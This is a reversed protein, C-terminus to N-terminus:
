RNKTFAKLIVNCEHEKEVNEWEMGRLSIYGEGDTIDVNATKENSVYEIAIPRESEPTKIKIIIAYKQDKNLYINNDLRVTYYGANSFKGTAVSDVAVNLSSEDLFNECFYISYETDVGTAYFSIAQLTENKKATYANAFYAMDKGYGIQGVWGCLDTQYINDFNDNPEIETYVVSNTGIITDYYSIYFNGEDGFNPGWSNRCIFAGDGPLIENFNEKPFDDDWGVIVVDHNPKENGTYCYANEDINYYNNEESYRATTSLYLSSQVGGYKYVMKKIMEYDKKPILQAEQLHKVPKLYNITKGDGYPDDKELVPGTWSALYALAMSYEGGRRQSLGFAENLSMHDPSFVYREEPLLSSELATLSAFAWCTGLAGQDKIEPLKDIDAYNYYSPLVLSDTDLNTLRATNNVPDWVFDYDFGEALTKLPVFYGKENFLFFSDIVVVDENIRITNSDLLMEITKSGKEMVIRKEEYIDVSCDFADPIVEVPVMIDRFENMFLKHESNRIQEEDIMLVVTRANVSESISENWLNSIELTGESVRTYTGRNYDILNAIIVLCATVTIIGALAKKM